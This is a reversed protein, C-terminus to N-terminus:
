ESSRIRDLPIELPIEKTWGDATSHHGHQELTQATQAVSKTDAAINEERDKGANRLREYEAPDTKDVTRGECYPLCLITVDCGAEKAEAVTSLGYPALRSTIAAERHTPNDSYVIVGLRAPLGSQQANIIRRLEAIERRAKDLAESM